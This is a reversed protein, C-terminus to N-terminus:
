TVRRPVQLNCQYNLYYMRESRNIWNSLCELSVRLLDGVSVAKLQEPSMLALADEWAVGLPMAARLGRRIALVVVAADERLAAELRDYEAAGLIRRAFRTYGGDKMRKVWATIRISQDDNIVLGLGSVLSEHDVEALTDAFCTELREHWPRPDAEDTLVGCVTVVVDWM